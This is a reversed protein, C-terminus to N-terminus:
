SYAMMHSSALQRKLEMFAREQEPEWTWTCLKRTLRRLLVNADGLTTALNPIFSVCYNVLGLFSRLEAANTPNRINDMPEIKSQGAEVNSTSLM